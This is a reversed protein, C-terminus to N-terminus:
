MSMARMRSFLKDIRHALEMGCFVTVGCIAIPYIIAVVLVGFGNPAFSFGSFVQRGDLVYLMDTLVDGGILVYMVFSRGRKLAPYIYHESPFSLLLMFIQVAWGIGAAILSTQDKSGNQLDLLQQATMGPDITYTSQLMHHVAQQTSTIQLISFIFWAVGCIIATALLWLPSTHAEGGHALSGEVVMGSRRGKRM